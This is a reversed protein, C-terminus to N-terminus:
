ADRVNFHTVYFLPKRLWSFFLRTLRSHLVSLLLNKFKRRKPSQNRLLAGIIRRRVRYFPAVVDFLAAALRRSSIIVIM